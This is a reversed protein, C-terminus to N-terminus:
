RNAQILPHTDFGIFLCESHPIIGFNQMVKEQMARALNIIDQSTANGLNVLMNAHQHSVRADGVQLEGKVGIKDLYYATYIMKKNNIVLSVEHDHFNRFFSGCTNKSPYRNVRHRIIEVSRGRAYAAELANCSRLQFTVNLIFYDHKQLESTNYGFSFWSVPVTEISNTKKHIIVAEVIFQSLLFEYYHLNIYASGGVTGPIGSFEELGLINNNLCYEILEEMTAGAGAQVLVQNGDKKVVTITTLRLRVVLGNFGQDSVLINAGLGLIFLPLNHRDAYVLAEIFEQNTKPECFFRANGGTGFWNKDRLSIHEQITLTGNKTNDPQSNSDPRINNNHHYIM